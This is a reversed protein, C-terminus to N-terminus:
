NRRIQAASTETIFECFHSYPLGIYWGPRKPCFVVDQVCFFLFERQFDNVEMSSNHYRFCVQQFMFGDSLVHGSLKSVVLIESIKLLTVLFGGFFCLYMYANTFICLVHYMIMILCSYILTSLIQLLVCM